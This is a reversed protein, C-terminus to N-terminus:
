LNGFSSCLEWLYSMGLGESWSFPLAPDAPAGALLLGCLQQRGSVRAWAQPRCVGVLVRGKDKCHILGWPCHCPLFPLPAPLPDPIFASQGLCLCAM